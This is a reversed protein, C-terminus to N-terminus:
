QSGGRLGSAITRRAEWDPLGVSAAAALFVTAASAADLEGVAAMEGARCAAWHLTSNRAGEAASEVARLLGGLRTPVPATASAQPQAPSALRGLWVPLPAPEEADLVTYPNGAVTSGAGVVYGGAARVDVLPGVKSATNRIRSGIPAAFYLHWGGSPTAVMHTSPWPQQAWECLQALVDRGDRIGPLRWDDPLEGHTDLDVVVLGSPGCAVGVNAAAPWHRAVREPDSCAREEWRDVAPRKEGPRCPFVAWGRRAAAVAADRGSM